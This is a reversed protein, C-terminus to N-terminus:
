SSYIVDDGHAVGRQGDLEVSVDFSKYHNKQMVYLKYFLTSYLSIAKPAKLTFKVRLCM